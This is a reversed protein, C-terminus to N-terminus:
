SYDNKKTMPSAGRCSFYRGIVARGRVEYGHGMLSPQQFTPHPAVARDRRRRRRWGAAPPGPRAGLLLLCCCAALILFAFAHVSPCLRSCALVPTSSSSLPRSAIAERPSFGKSSSSSSPGVVLGLKQQATPLHAAMALRSPLQSGDVSGGGDGFSVSLYLHAHIVVDLPRWEQWSDTFILTM